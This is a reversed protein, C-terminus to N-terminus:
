KRAEPLSWLSTKFKGYGEGRTIVGIKKAARTLTRRSIGVESAEKVLEKFEKEDHALQERLWRKM